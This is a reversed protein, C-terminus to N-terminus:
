QNQKNALVQQLFDTSGRQKNMRRVYKRYMNAGTMEDSNQLDLDASSLSEDELLQEVRTISERTQRYQKALWNKYKVAGVRIGGLIRSGAQNPGVFSDDLFQIYDIEIAINKIVADLYDVPTIDIRFPRGPQVFSNKKEERFDPHLLTDFTEYNSMADEKGDVKLKTVLHLTGAVMVGPSNNELTCPLQLIEGSGVLKADGCTLVVPVVGGVPAIQRVTVALSRSTSNKQQNTATETKTQRHAQVDSFHRSKVGVVILFVLCVGAAVSARAFHSINLKARDEM